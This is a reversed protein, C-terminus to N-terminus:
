KSHYEDSRRSGSLPIKPVTAAEATRRRRRDGGSAIFGRSPLSFSCDLRSSFSKGRTCLRVAEVLETDGRRSSLWCYAPSTRKISIGGEEGDHGRLQRTPDCLRWLGRVDESTPNCMNM